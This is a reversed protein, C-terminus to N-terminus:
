DLRFSNSGQSSYVQGVLFGCTCMFVYLGGVDSLEDYPAFIILRHNDHLFYTDVSNVKLSTQFICLSKTDGVYLCMERFLENLIFM